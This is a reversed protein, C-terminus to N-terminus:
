NINECHVRLAFVGLCNDCKSKSWPHLEFSNKLNGPEKYLWHYNHSYIVVCPQFESNWRLYQLVMLLSEKYILSQGYVYPWGIHIRRFSPVSHIRDSLHFWVCNTLHVVFKWVYHDEEINAAFYKCFPFKTVSDHIFCTFISRINVAYKTFTEIWMKYPIFCQTNLPIYRM